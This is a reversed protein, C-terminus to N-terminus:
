RVFQITVTKGTEIAPAGDVTRPAFRMEYVARLASTNFCRDDTEAVTASVPKGATTISFIVSVAVKDGARTVCREPYAPAAGIIVKAPVIVPEPIAPEAEAVPELPTEVTTFLVAPPTEVVLVPAEEVPAVKVPAPKPKPKIIPAKVVVVPPTAPSEVVAEVVTEPVPAPEPEIIIPEVVTAPAEVAAVVTPAPVIPSATENPQAIRGALFAVVAIAAGAGIWTVLKEADVGNPMAPAVTFVAKSTPPPADPAAFEPEPAFARPPAAAIAPAAAPASATAPAIVPAAVPAIVPAIVPAAVPAPAMVPAAVPQFGTEAKYAKAFDDGDLGLFQAYAKVFGATFPTAPLFQREGAELAAIHVIKIKTGTHVDVHSLGKAKRAAALKAGVSLGASEGNDREAAAPERAADEPRLVLIDAIDKQPAAM